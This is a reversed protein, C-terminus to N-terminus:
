AWLSTAQLKTSTARNVPIQNCSEHYASVLNSTMPMLVLGYVPLNPLCLKLDHLSAWITLQMEEPDTDIVRQRCSKMTSQM